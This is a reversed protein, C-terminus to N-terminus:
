KNFAKKVNDKHSIVQLNSIDNNSKNEDIHDIEGKNPEGAVLRHVNKTYRVGNKYLKVQKYGQGNDYPTLEKNGRFVKGDSTVSYQPFGKVKIKKAM